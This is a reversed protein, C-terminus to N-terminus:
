KVGKQQYNPQLQVSKKLGLADLHKQLPTKRWVRMQSDWPDIIALQRRELMRYCDLLDFDELVGFVLSSLPWKPAPAQTLEHFSLLANRLTVRKVMPTLCAAFAATIAGIGRGVLHIDRYGKAEFLDLIRLLDYVRRGCYSENLMLGHAAYFYDSGYSAFFKDNACTRAAVQGIGRTDVAFLLREDPAKGDLVDKMSSIHPVYITAKEGRPFYFLGDQGTFAHLVACIDKETEVAFGAQLRKFDKGFSTARLVRYYPEGRSGPLNLRKVIREILKRESLPGRFVALAEAKERTFDFVRRAGNLFRVQGRPTAWLTKEKEPQEPGKEQWQGTKGAHKNFFKYMAERLERSYGHNGSGIFLQINDEAGLIGYLRRLEKYTAEIGRQDFSDNNQGLLLTPRPMHAVFFDSQDLGAALIGPPIQEADCPLENELNSLYQTVFCGPAAMTVREEFATLYTTLTGGGSNGTVGVRTADVEARSLLYDLSRIGDWLRWTGFFDGCLAMQKGMMNHERCCNSPRMEPYQLREGQSLPDYILVVYGQRALNQVFTQYTVFAKGNWSHGCPGLVAPAPPCVQRPIYLNATVPFDPRSEYVVKEIRYDRREVVGTTRAKLPAREPLRGFCGQLKKRVENRLQIAQAKTRVGARTKAREAALARVRKVYYEHIMHGYFHEHTMEVRRKKCWVVHPLDEEDKFLIKVEKINTILVKKIVAM